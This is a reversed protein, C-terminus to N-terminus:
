KKFQKSVVGDSYGMKYYKDFTEKRVKEREKELLSEIFALMDRKEDGSALASKCTPNILFRKKFEDKWEM